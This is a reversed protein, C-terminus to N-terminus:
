YSIFIAGLMGCPTSCPRSGFDKQSTLVMGDMLSSRMAEALAPSRVSLGHTRQMLMTGAVHEHVVGQVAAHLLVAILVRLTSITELRALLAELFARHSM